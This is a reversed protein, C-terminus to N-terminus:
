GDPRSADDTGTPDEGRTLADWAEHEDRVPGAATPPGPAAGREPAADGTGDPR